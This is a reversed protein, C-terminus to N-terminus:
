LGLSKGYCGTNYRQYNELRRYYINKENDYYQIECNEKSITIKRVDKINEYLEDNIGLTIDKIYGNMFSDNKIVANFGQKIMLIINKHTRTFDHRWGNELASKIINKVIVSNDTPISFKTPVYCDVLYIYFRNNVWRIETYDYTETINFEKKIIERFYHYKGHILHGNFLRNYITDIYKDLQNYINNTKEEM